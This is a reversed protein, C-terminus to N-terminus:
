YGMMPTGAATPPPQYSEVRQRILFIATQIGQPPGSISVVRDNPATPEPAAVSITTGSQMKIDRIISGGKGIVTGACITPIVIKELKTAGGAGQPSGMQPAMGYPSQQPPMGYGQPPMGYPSPAGYPSAGFSMQPQGPVYPNSTTGPRMPNDRIQTLIRTIAANSQEINGTVSVTKETSGGLPETSLSIKAGTDEQMSKIIAGGRGIIAGALSQHVLLKFCHTDVVAEPNDTQKREQDNKILLEAIMQLAAVNFDVTGKIQMVREKSSGETKLISVFASSDLRIKKVNVGAKGIIVSAEYNDVIVRVEQLEDADGETRPKKMGADETGEM